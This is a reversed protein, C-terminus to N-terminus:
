RTIKKLWERAEEGLVKAGIDIKSRLSKVIKEDITGECIFDIYTVTNKQGLRHCRDESQIRTELNFDNAYYIVTNAATLTLGYGATAPNAVLFRADGYQFNQIALERDDESTDGYYSVVSDEGFKNSLTSYIKKIDYRFRSWIIVKGSTEEICDILTTLRNTPFEVLDGENTPLHGCLIQQFRLLQTIVQMATVLGGDQLLTMAQTAIDNYMDKQYPTLEIDRITYVKEPLDICDKKLIRSSFHEIKKTLEELNRYGVIHQFSHSGMTRKQIIAYRNQFAYFSDFGLVSPELFECQSFLDLPSKTVPSGTLIRSYKFQPALKLLAKTRAAKPNKITTSEDIAIMGLSGFKKALWDGVSKGKASSFAEVNMVFIKVGPNTSAFFSKFEDKYRKTNTSQWYFLHKRIDDPFHQPIERNVWNKYVGKPAIILAFNLSQINSLYAITDILVKSKGTGMEMFYAYHSLSLNKVWADYQHDYPKTKFKYNVEM